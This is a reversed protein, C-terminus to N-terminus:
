SRKALEADFMWVGLETNQMKRLKDLLSSAVAEEEVQENVFWSLFCQTQYDKEMIAIEYIANIMGTVKQEHRLMEEFIHLPARWEQKSAVIPLLKIKASRDQMHEFIKMAHRSEEKAQLMMWHSCGDLGMDKLVSSMALYMYSSAFEETIQKNLAEYVRKGLGIGM